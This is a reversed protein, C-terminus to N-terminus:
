GHVINMGVGRQAERDVDGQLPTASHGTGLMRITKVCYFFLSRSHALVVPWCFSYLRHTLPIPEQGVKSGAPGEPGLWEDQVGGDRVVPSDRGVLHRSATDGM